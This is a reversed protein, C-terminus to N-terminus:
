RGTRWRDCQCAYKAGAGALAGALFPVVTCSGLFLSTYLWLDRVSGRPDNLMLSEGDNWLPSVDSPIVIALNPLSFIAAALLWRWLRPPPTLGLAYGWLLSGFSFLCVAPLWLFVLSLLGFGVMIIIFFRLM